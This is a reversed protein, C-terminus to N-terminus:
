KRALVGGPHRTIQGDMELDLLAPAAEQPTAGAARLLEDEAM